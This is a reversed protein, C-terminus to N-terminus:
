ENEEVIARQMEVKKRYYGNKHERFRAHLDILEQDRGITTGFDVAMEMCKGATALLGVVCWLDELKRMAAIRRDKKTERM